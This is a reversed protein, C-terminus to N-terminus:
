TLIQHHENSEASSTDEHVDDEELYRRLLYACIRTFRSASMFKGLAAFAPVRKHTILAPNNM